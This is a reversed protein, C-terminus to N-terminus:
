PRSVCGGCAQPYAAIDRSGSRGAREPRAGPPNSSEPDHVGADRSCEDPPQQRGEQCHGQQAHMMEGGGALGSGSGRLVLQKPGDLRFGNWRRRGTGPGARRVATRRRRHERRLGRVVTGAIVARTVVQQM